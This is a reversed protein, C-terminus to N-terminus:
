FDKLLPQDMEKPARLGMLLLATPAINYLAPHKITRAAINRDSIIICPVNNTTHATSVSGDPYRKREANGHDATIIVDYGNEQACPVLHALCADITKVAKITERLKGTHGVMDANSYNILIFGYRKRALADQATRTIAHASMEPKEDYTAVRPSQILKRTEGTFAKDTLGNFFFTVHAWKETEALRYQKIGAKSIIEGLTNKLPERTFAVPADLTEDYETM